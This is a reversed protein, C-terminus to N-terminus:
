RVTVLHATHVILVARIWRVLGTGRQASAGAGGGKGTGARAGRGLREVCALLLPVALQAPLRKVTNLIVSEDSHMLCLELLRTDSSHLAQILTRSLSQTSIGLREEGKRTKGFRTTKTRKDTDLGENELDSARTDLEVGSLATLRQGLSLEALDIDLDGDAKNTETDDEGEAPGNGVGAAM